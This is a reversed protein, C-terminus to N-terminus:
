VDRMCYTHDRACFAHRLEGPFRAHPSLTKIAREGAVAVRTKCGDCAHQARHANRHLKRSYLIRLPLLFLRLRQDHAGKEGQPLLHSKGQCFDSSPDELECEGLSGVM